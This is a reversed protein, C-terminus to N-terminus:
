LNEINEKYRASSTSRLLQGTGSDFFANAASATTGHGPFAVVGASTISMRINSGFNANVNYAMKWTNSDSADLGTTWYDAGNGAIFQADATSTNSAVQAIFRASATTSSTTAWIDVAGTDTLAFYDGTLTHNVGTAGVTLTGSASINQAGFAPAIKTGAIAASASVDANVITAVSFVGSTAKVVGTSSGMTIGTTSIAGSFPTTTSGVTKYTPSYYSTM